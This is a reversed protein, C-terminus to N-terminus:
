DNFHPLYNGSLSPQRMHGTAMVSPGNQQVNQLSAPGSHPFKQSTPRVIMQQQTINNPEGNMSASMTGNESQQPGENGPSM